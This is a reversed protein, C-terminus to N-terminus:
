ICLLHIFHFSFNESHMKPGKNVFSTTSIILDVFTLFLLLLLLIINVIFTITKFYYYYYNYVKTKNTCFYNVKLDM